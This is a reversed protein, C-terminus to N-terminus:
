SSARARRPGAARGVQDVGRGRRPLQAIRALVGPRDISRLHLYFASTVDEIIATPVAAPVPRQAGTARRDRRWAGRQRDAHRGGGSRVDHDRHDGAVRGHGRQLLRRGLRAPHGAYLFAPHVRVSIGGDIREATGILKLALGLERAYGIDDSRSRSSGRTAFMTSTFRRTLPSARSSRWRRRPTRAASTM